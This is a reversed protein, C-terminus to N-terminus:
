ITEHQRTLDTGAALLGTLFGALIHVGTAQGVGALRNADALLGSDDAAGTFISFALNHLPEPGQGLALDGLIAHSVPNTRSRAWDILDGSPQAEWNFDGPYARAVQHAAFLLGGLFDDGSPTLGGGLGVLNRGRTALQSLGDQLCFRAADQIPSWLERQWSGARPPASDRGGVLSGIMPILPDGGQGARGSAVQKLLRRVRANVVSFPLALGPELEDPQWLAAYQMDLCLDEGIRLFPGEVRFRQGSCLTHPLFSVPIGRRHRPVGTRNIWLIEGSGGILYCAASLAALVRGSFGPINMLTRAGAGICQAPWDFTPVDSAPQKTSRALNGPKSPNVSM